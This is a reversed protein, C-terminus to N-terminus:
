ELARARRERLRVREGADDRDRGALAPDPLRGDCHVQRRRQGSLTVFDAHNIRINQAEGDRPEHTDCVLRGTDVVEDQRWDRM